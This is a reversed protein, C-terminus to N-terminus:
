TLDSTTELLPTYSRSPAFRHLLHVLAGGLVASGISTGTVGTPTYIFSGSAPQSKLCECGPLISCSNNFGSVTPARAGCWKACNLEVDAKTVMPLQGKGQESYCHSIKQSRFSPTDPLFKARYWSSVPCNCESYHSYQGYVTGNYSALSCVQIAWANSCAYTFSTSKHPTENSPHISPPDVCDYCTDDPAGPCSVFAAESHGANPTLRVARPSDPDETKPGLAFQFGYGFSLGHPQVEEPNGEPNTVNWPLYAEFGAGGGDGGRLSIHKGPTSACSRISEAVKKMSEIWNKHDTQTMEISIVGPPHNGAGAGVAPIGDAGVQVGGGGGGGAEIPTGEEPTNVGGGGGGGGTIITEEEENTDNVCFIEFGAGAGGGGSVGWYPRGDQNQQYLEEVSVHGGMPDYVTRPWGKQMSKCMSEYSNYGFDLVLNFTNLLSKPHKAAMLDRLYKALNKEAVGANWELMSCLQEGGGPVQYPGTGADLCEVFTDTLWNAYYAFRLPYEDRVYGALLEAFASAGAFM